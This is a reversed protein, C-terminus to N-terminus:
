GRAFFFTPRGMTERFRFQTRRYTRPRGPREGRTKRLTTQAAEFARRLERSPLRGIPSSHTPRSFFRYTRFHSDNGRDNWGGKQEERERKKSATQNMWTTTTTPPRRHARHRSTCCNVSTYDQVFNIQHGYFACVRTFSKFPNWSEKACAVQNTFSM